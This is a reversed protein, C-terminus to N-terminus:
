IWKKKEESWVATNNPRPPADDPIPHGFYNRKGTVPDVTEFRHSPNKRLLEEQDLLQRLIRKHTPTGPRLFNAFYSRIDRHSQINVGTGQLEIHNRFAEVIFNQHRVFMPSIGSSMSLLAMWEQDTVAEELYEHWTKIHPLLDPLPDCDEITVTENDIYETDSSSSGAYAEEKVAVTTTTEERNEEEKSQEEIRNEEAGITVTFQGNDSRKSLSANKKGVKSQRKRKDELPKMVRNLYISSVRMNDGNGSVSFLGFDHIISNLMETDIQYSRAFRKLIYPGCKYNECKRLELLLMMYTGFGEQGHKETMREMREEKLINTEVKFYQDNKM